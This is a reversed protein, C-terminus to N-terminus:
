KTESQVSFESTTYELIRHSLVLTIDQLSLQVLQVELAIFIKSIRNNSCMRTKFRDYQLCM